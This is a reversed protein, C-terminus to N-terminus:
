LTKRGEFLNGKINAQIHLVDKHERHFLVVIIKYFVIKIRFIHSFIFSVSVVAYNHWLIILAKTPIDTTSSVHSSTPYYLM